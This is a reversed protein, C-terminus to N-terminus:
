KFERRRFTLDSLALLLGTFCFGYAVAILLQGPDLTQGHVAAARINFLDLNPLTWKLIAMTQAVAANGTVEAFTQLDQVTHGAVFVGLTFLSTLVPTTFTSFFVVVGTILLMEVITMGLSVFFAGQVPTATLWCALLFVAFLGVLMCTLVAVLGLYKGLLYELRTIPKALITMITRRDLEKHLMASGVLLVVMVCLLPLSALGIDAVIKQQAGVTLPSMVVSAALLLLGFAAVLFFIRDRVAERFTNRAIALTKM